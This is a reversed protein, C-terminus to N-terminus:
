LIEVLTGWKQEFARKIKDNKQSNYLEVEYELKIVAKLGELSLQRNGMKCSYIYYKAIILILSNINVTIDGLIVIKAELTGLDIHPLLWVKLGEWLLKVVPCEVFLHLITEKEGSCFSCFDSDVLGWAKLNKNVGIVRHTIRYQFSQLKTSQTCKFPLSNYAEWDEETVEVNLINEWKLEHPRNLPLVDIFLKYIFQCTKPRSIINFVLDTELINPKSQQTGLVRRWETPISAILSAFDMFNINIYLHNFEEFSILNMENDHLDAVTQCGAHWLLDGMQILNPNNIYWSDCLTYSLIQVIEDSRDARVVKAWILIVEKWFKNEIRAGLVQLSKPDLSLLRGCDGIGTVTQFVNTWEENELLLYRIWRSKLADIQSQIHPLKLGGKNYQQALLSRNIKGKKHNWLFCSFIENLRKIFDDNPSPLITLIHVLKPIAMTKIVTVKGLLSLNRHKYSQLLATIQMIKGELNQQTSSHVDLTNFQIGLLTFSTCWQFGIDECIHEQSRRRRGLWALYTKDINLKLGSCNHFDTFMKTAARLSGEDGEMLLFTDDAYQGVKYEQNGLKIGKINQNCKLAVALPEIALLFVYPSSPDGQRCGRQLKFFESFNGSNIVCSEPNSYLTWFWKKINEGINYGELLKKVYPWEVSDYAKEFDALMIMGDRNDQELQQMVDFVLRTNEGIFREKLFGKQSDSIIHPLINKFRNALCSSLLKYDACLLTIPRWNKLYQRPKDGKPLCTIIGRKQTISLEGINLAHRFSRVVFNGIDPWFFKLFEAPYGDMGPSKNNPMNKLSFKIEEETLPGDHEVKQEDTLRKLCEENLFLENKEGTYKSRYLEKYFKTQEKLIEAQETIIKDGLQLCRMHKNTYNRKELSCFYHTPKEGMEVWRARSRIMTARVSTERLNELTSKKGDLEERIENSPTHSLRTELINIEAILEKEEKLRERKKKSGYSMSMKRIEMKMMEWVLQDDIEFEVQSMPIINIDQDKKMYQKVVTEITQKVKQVFTQDKLLSTNFKWFGKGHQQESLTLMLKILSHDTKYGALIDAAKTLNYIDETVLFFDLRSQKLNQGASRWTYRKTDENQARWPDILTLETKLQVVRKQAEENNRHLYGSTDLRYDMVLNWDGVIIVSQNEYKDISQQIKNYFDPNDRNPGYITIFTIRRENVELDVVIYNGAPDINQKHIIFEFNNNFIIAVGRSDGKFPALICKYGWENSWFNKLEPKCHIDQLCYINGKLDRLWKFVDRRKANTALGRVNMSYITLEGTAM